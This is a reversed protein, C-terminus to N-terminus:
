GRRARRARRRVLALVATHVLMIVAAALGGVGNLFTVAAQGTPSIWVANPIPLLGPVLVVATAALLVIAPIVLAYPSWRTATAAVWLVVAGLVALLAVLGNLEAQLMRVAIYVGAGHAHLLLLAGALLGLPVLLLGLLNVLGPAAPRRRAILLGLGLGGLLPPLLLPAGYLIGDLVEFPVLEPRLRYLLVMLSPVATLLLPLLGLAGAMLLGASSAIGTAVISALLLLALGITLVMRLGQPTQLVELVADGQFGFAMLTRHLISGGYGLLGLALPLVILAYVATLVRAIAGSGHRPREAAHSHAAHSSSAATTSM